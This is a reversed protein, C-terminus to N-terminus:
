SEAVRKKTVKFSKNGKATVMIELGSVKADKYYDRKGAKAPKLSEIFNKTFNYKKSEM